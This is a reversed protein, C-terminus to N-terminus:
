VLVTSVFRMQEIVKAMFDLCGVWFFIRLRSDFPVEWLLIDEFKFLKQLLRFLFGFPKTEFLLFLHIWCLFDAIFFVGKFIPQIEYSLWGLFWDEFVNGLLSSGIIGKRTLLSWFAYLLLVQHPSDIALVDEPGGECPEDFSLNRSSQLLNILTITLVLLRFVATRFLLLHRHLWDQDRLAAQEM